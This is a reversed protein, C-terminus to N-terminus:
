LYFSFSVKVFDTKLSINDELDIADDTGTVTAFTMWRRDVEAVIHGTQGLQLLVGIGLMGAVGRFTADALSNGDTASDDIGLSILSVGCRVLPNILPSKTKKAFPLGYADMGYLHLRGDQDGLVSRTKPNATFYFFSVGGQNWANGFAFHMGEAELVEPVNVMQTSTSLLLSDDFEGDIDFRAWGLELYSDGEKDHIQASVGSVALAILCGVFTITRLLM